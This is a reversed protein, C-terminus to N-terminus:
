QANKRKPKKPPLCSASHLLPLPGLWRRVSQKCSVKFSGLPCDGRLLRLKRFSNGALERFRMLGLIARSLAKRLLTQMQKARGRQRYTCYKTKVRRGGVFGRCSHGQLSKRATSMLMHLNPRRKPNRRGRQLLLLFRLLRKM